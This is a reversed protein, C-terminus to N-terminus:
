KKKKTFKTKKKPPPSEVSSSEDSNSQEPEEAEAEPESSATDEEPEETEKPETEDDEEKTTEAEEPKDDTNGTDTNAGTPEDLDELVVVEDDDEDPLFSYGTLRSPPYVRIQLATASASFSNKKLYVGNLEIIAKIHCGKVVVDKVDARQKDPGFCKVTFEGDGNRRLKLTLTDPYKGTLNGEEDKHKYLLSSYFGRAMDEKMTKRGLWDQSREIATKVVTEDYLDLNDHFVKMKGELEKPFSLNIMYSQPNPDDRPYSSLGWQCLMKPTEIRIRHKDSYVYSAKGGYSNQKAATFTFETPDFNDPKFIQGRSM